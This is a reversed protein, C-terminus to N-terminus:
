AQRIAQVTLSTGAVDTVVVATGSEVYTGLTKVDYCVDCIIVKGAPRLPTQAIGQRGILSDPYTRATYGQQTAQVTSLVMRRFARTKSLHVGGMFLVIGIGALAALMFLAARVMNESALPSWSLDERQLETLLHTDSARLICALGLNWALCNMLAELYCFVGHCVLRTHYM